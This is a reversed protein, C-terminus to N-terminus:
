KVEALVFSHLSQPPITEIIREDRALSGAVGVRSGLSLGLDKFPLRVEWAREGAASEVAAEVELWSGRQSALKLAAGFGPIMDVRWNAGFPTAGAESAEAAAFVPPQGSEGETRIYLTAQYPALASRAELRFYLFGPNYGFYLRRLVGSDARQMAGSSASSEVFGAGTWELSAEEAATLHPTIYGSTPRYARPATLGQIPEALWPPAPRGIIYYVASLHGRFARDFVNEQTSANRSYYWWFWDSGEAIYVQRWAEELVDLGAGVTANQWDVLEQRVRALVEWARNQEAEGIWTELNGGIWSGTALQNLTQQPPFQELYESVTVTQLEQEQTLREYLHHLFPDGYDPYSEWCNEGDLIISVLWPHEADNLRQRIVKLRHILDEAADKGAMGQYVFGIRDSLTHDRFIAALAPSSNSGNTAVPVAYPQYPVQPNNVHGYSDREISVGLSRALIAEDTAFWRIGQRTLAPLMEPCVSGESPWLGRPAEHFVKKHFEVALRVQEIVDEMHRFEWAPLPLNPSARRATSLDALLPLIPHYYPSTTLEIQGRDRLASYLSVVRALYEHQKSLILDIDARTFDQGKEVLAVMDPDNRLVIHDIWVMNFWAVLDRYFSDSLLHHGGRVQHRLELLQRYRPYTRIVREWNASFFFSLMYARDDESWTHQRSLVLARDAAQGQAYELIQDVLSPVFNFTAKVRPYQALVEAMHVYEKAGHLRVWPLIYEGTATDKYYPQHMHWVFAVYLPHSM